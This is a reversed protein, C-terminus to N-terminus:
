RIEFLQQLVTELDRGVIWQGRRPLVLIKSRERRVLPVNVYTIEPRDRPMGAVQSPELPTWRFPVGTWNFTIEWGGVLGPARRKTLLSPYRRIFDPDRFTAIRIRVAPEMRAFEDQMTHIRGARWDNFVALPDIGMLNYGNWIGQLNRSGYRKRDYWAQFNRTVMLGIEFHMHARALPFPDDSSHGMIGLVQGAAVREGVHLGPAIRALHAYLTYVAPTQAPHELVIYRGYNSDGAIASIHRVVGDMAAFIEDLPEGRRNRRLPKIDIGEHFRYGNDRVSGFTGSVPNGSGAQQIYDGLPAHRAWGPNPTPWVLRLPGAAAAHVALSLLTILALTSRM